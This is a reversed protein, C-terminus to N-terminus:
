CEEYLRAALKKYDLLERAIEMSNEKMQKLINPDDSIEQFVRKMDEISEVYYGNGHLYPEHSKHPYLMMACGCCIANQMTASQGGPQVYVDAACLYEILEDAAKWGVFSIRSDAEVLPEAEERVDETMSGILVLRMNDSKVQSFAKLIDVTRKHTDMKGSHVILIDNKKISSENNIKKRKENLIGEDFVRGGLPYFELMKNPIGYMERVFLACEHSVFLIKDIYPLAKSLIAKYFGKHLVVRSLFNTASNHFDEHSDVYLKINPNNKKLKSVSLLEWGCCGHFLIVDPNINEVINYFGKVARVKESIFEGFINRFPLRILRVGNKMVKDEPKTAVIKGDSFKYCDSIYTVDHGDIANQESLYNDQYSFGETFKSALGIHLIKM